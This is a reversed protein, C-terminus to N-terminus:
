LRSLERTQADPDNRTTGARRLFGGTHPRTRSGLTDRGLPARWHHPVPDDCFDATVFRSRM